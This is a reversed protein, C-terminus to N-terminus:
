YFIFLPHRIFYSCTGVWAVELGSKAQLPEFVGNIVDDVDDSTPSEALFLSHWDAIQARIVAKDTTKPTAFNFLATNAAKRVAMGCWAQSLPTLTQVFNTSISLDGHASTVASAGGLSTFRGKPSWQGPARDPSRVDYNDASRELYASVGYSHADSYFDSESLGLLDRLGFEIFTADVRHAAPLAPDAHATLGPAELSTVWERIEALHIKTKGAADLKAFSDGSIPMQKQSSNSRTGELLMVLESEDPKGPKVLRPNRVLLSEFANASAFYGIDGTSHCGACDQALALRVVETQSNSGPLPPCGDTGDSRAASGNIRGTCACLTVLLLLRNM